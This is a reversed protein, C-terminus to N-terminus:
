QSIIDYVDTMGWGRRPNDPFRSDHFFYYILVTDVRDSVMFQLVEQITQGPEITIEHDDLSFTAEDLIPWNPYLINEMPTHSGSTIEQLAFYGERLKVKVRSSNHLAAKVAIHVYGNGIDRHDVTHAITLHPEFDRFLEPKVAAIIGGAVIAVVTVGSQIISVIDKLRGPEEPSFIQLVLIAWGLAIIIGLVIVLRGLTHFSM